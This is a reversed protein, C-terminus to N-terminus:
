CSAIASINATQPYFDSISSRNDKIVSLSSSYFPLLTFSISIKSQKLQNPNM